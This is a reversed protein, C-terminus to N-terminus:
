EDRVEIMVEYSRDRREDDSLHNFWFVVMKQMEDNTLPVFTYGDRDSGRASHLEIDAGCGECATWVELEDNIEEKAPRNSM